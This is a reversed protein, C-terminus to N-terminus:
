CETSKLVRGWAETLAARSAELHEPTFQELTLYGRYDFEKLLELFGVLDLKGGDQGVPNHDRNNLVDHLHIVVVSSRHRAFHLLPDGGNMLLHGADFCRSFGEAILFPMLEEVDTWLNEVAIKNPEILEKVEKLSRQAAEVGRLFQRAEFLRSLPTRGPPFIPTVHLVYYAPRLREAQPFIEALARISAARLHPNLSAVALSLPLHITYESGKEQQLQLLREVLDDSLELREGDYGLTIEIYDWRTAQRSVNELIDLNPYTLSTVGLKFPFGSNGRDM